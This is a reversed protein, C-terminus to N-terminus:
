EFLYIISVYVSFSISHVPFAGFLMSILFETLAYSCDMVVDNVHSYLQHQPEM